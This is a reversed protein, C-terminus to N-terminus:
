VSFAPPSAETIERLGRLEHSLDHRIRRIVAAQQPRIYFHGGSFWRTSFGATTEMRWAELQEPLVEDDRGAFARLPVPLRAPGRYQFSSCVRYDAALTDMALRLMEASEFVDDPTGGYHRLDRILVDDSSRSLYRWSDRRSPAPSASTFVMVPLPKRQAQLHTAMGYALLGGMSHGFLAYPTELVRSHEVCLQEVLTDFSTSFPEAARGGRGPLEVPVLRIWIPLLLRWRMYMTASAGGCPLCLLSVPTQFRM